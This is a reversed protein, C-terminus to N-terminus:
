GDPRHTKGVRRHILEGVWERLRGLHEANAQIWAVDWPQDGMAALFEANLADVDPDHGVYTGASMREFQVEAEALWTGLHAVVDRVTWDPDRYYGPVLCEEPTLSRILGSLEYWGRSEAEIEAAYPHGTRPATALLDAYAPHSRIYRAIFPCVPVVRLGRARADDLAFAALRSGLGRGAFARDVETHIFTIEANSFRYRAFGALDGDVSVEYRRREPRDVVDIVASDM